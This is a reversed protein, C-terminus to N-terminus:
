QRALRLRMGSTLKDAVQGLVLMLQWNGPERTETVWRLARFELLPPFAEPRGLALYGRFAALAYVFQREGFPLAALKAEVGDLAILTGDIDEDEVTYNLLPWADRLLGEIYVRRGKLDDRTPDTEIALDLAKKEILPPFPRGPYAAVFADYFQQIEEVQLGPDTFRQLISESWRDVKEQALRAAVAADDPEDSEAAAEGYAHRISGSVAGGTTSTEIAARFRAPSTRRLAVTVLGNPVPADHWRQAVPTGAAFRIGSAAGGALTESIAMMSQPGFFDMYLIEYDNAAALDRFLVPTYTFYGHNLYGVMPVAHYMVGGVRTADHIVKLCNYQNIIHETTGCNLVLDFSARSAVPVSGTNLDFVTTRHGDFIDYAVYEMGARTLLDGLWAGGVTGTEPRYASGAAFVEAYIALDEADWVDNFRRIFGVVEPPTCCLVNQTGIDLVRRPAATGCVALVDLIEPISTGM